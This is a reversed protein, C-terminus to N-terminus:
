ISKASPRLICCILVLLLFPPPFPVIKLVVQFSFVSKRLLAFLHVGALINSQFANFLDLRLEPVAPSKVLMSESLYAKPFSRRAM